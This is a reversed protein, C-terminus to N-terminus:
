RGPRWRTRWTCAQAPVAGHALGPCTPATPTGRWCTSRPRSRASCGTTSSTASCSTTPASCTSPRARHGQGDLYGSRTWRAPVLAEVAAATPSCPRRAHGGNPLRGRLQPLTSSNVLRDGLRTSTPSRWRDIITGGLCISLLQERRVRHDVRVVDIATLPGLRLYDDFTLDRMSADPNRYSIAFTTHGHACRGSSSARGRRSTPSTTATSGRRACSCRSRTCRTPRRRRVPAGRHARQPVRGQGAHCRHQGRARVGVPRGPSALRRERHRRHAFNRAGRLVSMGGTEFARKLGVPNTLPFNTPSAADTLLRAAFQARAETVEPLGAGAVLEDALSVTALYTELLMRFAPNQAWTVDRFRSDGREVPVPETLGGRVTRRGVDLGALAVRGGFRATAPITVQPRVALRPVASGLARVMSVPDVQEVIGEFLGLEVDLEESQDDTTAVIAM